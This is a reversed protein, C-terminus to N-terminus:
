GCGGRLWAGGQFFVVCAGGLFCHGGLFVVCAGGFGCMGGGFFGCVGGSFVMCVGGFFWVRWGGGGVGTSLIVCVHLFIVKGWVENAPPLLLLLIPLHESLLTMTISQFTEVAAGVLRVFDTGYILSKISNLSFASSFGTSSIRCM